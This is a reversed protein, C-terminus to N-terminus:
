LPNRLFQTHITTVNWPKSFDGTRVYAYSGLFMDIAADGNCHVMRPVGM